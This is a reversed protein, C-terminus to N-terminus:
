WEARLECIHAEVEEKTKFRNPSQRIQEIAAMYDPIAESKETMLESVLEPNASLRQTLSALQAKLDPRTSDPVNIELRM